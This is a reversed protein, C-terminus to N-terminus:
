ILEFVTWNVARVKKTLERAIFFDRHAGFLGGGM